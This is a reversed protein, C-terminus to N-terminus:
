RKLENAKPPACFPQGDPKTLGSCQLRTPCPSIWEKSGGAQPQYCGEFLWNGANNLRGLADLTQQCSSYADPGKRARLESCIAPLLMSTGKKIRELVYTCTECDVGEPPMKANPPRNSQTDVTTNKSPPTSTTQALAPLLMSSSLWVVSAFAVITSHITRM